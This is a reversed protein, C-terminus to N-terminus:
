TGIHDKLGLSERVLMKLDAIEQRIIDMEQNGSEEQKQDKEAFYRQVLQSILAPFEEKTRDDDCEEMYCCFTPSWGSKKNASPAFLYRLWQIMSSVGTYTPILNFPPPLTTQSMYSM